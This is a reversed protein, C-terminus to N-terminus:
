KAKGTPKPTASLTSLNPKLIEGKPIIYLYSAELIDNKGLIGTIIVFDNTKFKTKIEAISVPKTQGSKTKVSILDDSKSIVQGWLISKEIQSTLPPLLIIKKAHLVGTDDVDGLAALKSEETIAQLSPTKRKVGKKQPTLDEYETDQNVSVLKTGNKSALTISTDSKSKVIGIYAKNQLKRNIEQKLKAAKSAIEQKLEELKEKVSASPTSNAANATPLIIMIFIIFIISSIAKRM